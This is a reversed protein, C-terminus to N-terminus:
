WHQSSRHFLFPIINLCYPHHIFRDESAFTARSIQRINRAPQWIQEFITTLLNCCMLPHLEPVYQDTALHGREAAEHVDGGAKFVETSTDQPVKDGQYEVQEEEPKTSTEHM